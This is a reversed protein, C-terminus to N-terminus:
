VGAKLSQLTTPLLVSLRDGVENYVFAGSDPASGPARGNWYSLAQAYMPLQRVSADTLLTLFVSETGCFSKGTALWSVLSQFIAARDGQRAQLHAINCVVANQFLTRRALAADDPEGVPGSATLQLRDWNTSYPTFYFRINYAM